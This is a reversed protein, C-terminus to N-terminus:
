TWMNPTLTTSLSAHDTTGRKSLHNEPVSCTDSRQLWCLACRGNKGLMAYMMKPTSVSYLLTASIYRICAHKKTVKTTSKSAKISLILNRGEHSKRKTGTARRMKLRLCYLFM